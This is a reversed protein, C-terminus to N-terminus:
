NKPNRKLSSIYARVASIATQSEYSRGYM